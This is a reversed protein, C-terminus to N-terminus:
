INLGEIPWLAGPHSHHYLQVNEKVEANSPPPHDVGRGPRMERNIPKMRAPIRVWKVRSWALGIDIYSVLEMSCLVEQAALLEESPWTIGWMTHFEFTWQRMWLHGGATRIRLWILGTWTEVDWKKFIWKLIIRWNLRPRALQRKGEPKGALVRYAGRM